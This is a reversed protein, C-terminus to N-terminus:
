NNNGRQRIARFYSRNISKSYGINRPKPNGTKTEATAKGTQKGTEYVCMCKPM